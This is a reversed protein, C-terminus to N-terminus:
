RSIGRLHLMGNEPISKQLIARGIERPYRIKRLFADPLKM